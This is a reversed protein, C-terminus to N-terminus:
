KVQIERNKVEILGESKMQKLERFLSPRQVGLADALQKKSIPLRITKTGQSAALANLYDMINERLTKQTYMAIKRNMVQSNLSISKIFNMALQHDLLLLEVQEKPIHFLECDAVCYINMPYRGIDGFLLNAGIISDKVFESIILESGNQALSYAVLSGMQVIDLSQCLDGQTYVTAGKKYAKSLIPMQELLTEDVGKFFPIDRNM